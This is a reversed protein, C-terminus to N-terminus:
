TAILGILEPLTYIEFQPKPHTSPWADGTNLWIGTLGAASPGIVDNLPYDGVFWAASADLSLEDLALQFIEPAPKRSGATESIIVVDMMICLARITAKQVETQGNSVIGLRIGREKLERLTEHLGARPQMCIPSVAYWHEGLDAIDSTTRWPLLAALEAFLEAKPRYGGGDGAQMIRELDDPAITGLQGAFDGAFQRAYNAISQRRDTLTNDLDFLIAQPLMVHTEHVTIKEADLDYWQNSSFCYVRYLQEFYHM